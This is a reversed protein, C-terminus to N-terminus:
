KEKIWKISINEGNEQGSFVLFYFGPSLLATDISKSDTQNLIEKYVVGGTINYVTLTGSVPKESTFMVYDQGPNPYIKITREEVVGDETSVSGLGIDTANFLMHSKAKAFNDFEIKNNENLFLAGENLYLLAREKNFSYIILGNVTRMSDSPVFEYIKDLEGQGDSKYLSAIYRLPNNEIRSSMVLIKERYPDFSSWYELYEFSKQEYFDILNGNFDYVADLFRYHDIQVDLTQIFIYKNNIIKGSTSIRFHGPFNNFLTSDILEFKINYYYLMIKQDIRNFNIHVLKNNNLQYFNIFQNTPTELRISDFDTVAIGYKNVKCFRITAVDLNDSIIREWYIFDDQNETRFLNSYKRARDISALVLLANENNESPTLFEVVEGTKIDIKRYTLLCSDIPFYLFPFFEPKADIRKRFGHVHLYGDGGIYMKFPMEAYPQSNVDYLVDWIVQGNNINRKQILGGADGGENINLVVNLTIMFDDQFIPDVPTKISIANFGDSNANVLRSDFVNEYWIPQVGHLDLKEYPKIPHQGFLILNNILLLYIYLYRMDM